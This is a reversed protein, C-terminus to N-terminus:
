MYDTLSLNALRATLTYLTTMQTELAQLATASDYEDVAIMEARALTLAATEASNRTAVSEIREQATGISAGINSVSSASSILAAGAANAIFARKDTEGAFLGESLLAGIALSKLVQRVDPDAGTVSLSATEGEALKFPEFAEGGRYAVDLYGGSGAPADFWADVQSLVGSSTTEGAIASGIASLIIQPDALPATDTSKGSFLFRGATNTNFAAVASEFKENASLGVVDIMSESLSSGATLLAAGFDSTIDSITQTVAQMNASLTSAEQSVFKYSELTKLSRDIGALATFDGKLAAGVDAARGTTLEQTLRGMEAKISVNQRQLRFMQAMDGVSVFNM